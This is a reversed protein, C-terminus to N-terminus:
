SWGPSCRSGGTRSRPAAPSCHGQAFDVGHDRMVELTGGDEVMEAITQQGLGRAIRVISEVVLDDTRSRPTTIFDGDIKLYDTPM